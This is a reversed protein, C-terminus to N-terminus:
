VMSRIDQKGKNGTAVAPLDILSREDHEGNVNKLFGNVALRHLAVLFVM